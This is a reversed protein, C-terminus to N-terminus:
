PSFCQVTVVAKLKFFLNLQFHLAFYSFTTLFFREENTPFNVNAIYRSAALYDSHIRQLVISDILGFKDLPVQKLLWWPRPLLQYLYFHFFVLNFMYVTCRRAIFDDFVKYDITPRVARIEVVVNKSTFEKDLLEILAAETIAPLSANIYECENMRENCVKDYDLLKFSILKACLITAILFKFLNKM